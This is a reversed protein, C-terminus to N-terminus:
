RRSGERRSPSSRRASRFAPAGPSWRPSSRRSRWGSRSPSWRSWPAEVLLSRTITTFRAAIFIGIVVYSLQVLWGPPDGSVLGSGHLLRRSCCAASSGPEPSACGDLLLALAAGGALMLLLAVPTAIGRSAAVTPTEASVVIAPVVAVLMFLRLSQAMTIKLLDANTSVAVAFVASLAGPSAAFFATAPGLRRLAAPVLRHRDHDDGVVRRARRPQFPYRKLSSLMEPTVAAGMTVGCVLLRRTACPMRWGSRGGWPSSCRSALWQAPSRGPRFASGMSCSRGPSAAAFSELDTRLSPPRDTM